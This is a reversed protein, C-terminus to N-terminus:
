KAKGQRMLWIMFIIGLGVAMLSFVVTLADQAMFWKGLQNIDM